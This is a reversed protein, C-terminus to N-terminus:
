WPSMLYLTSKRLTYAVARSRQNFTGLWVTSPRFNGSSGTAHPPGAAPAASMESSGRRMTAKTGSAGLTCLPSWGAPHGKTGPGTTM